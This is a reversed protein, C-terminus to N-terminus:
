PREELLFRVLKPNRRLTDLTAPSLRRIMKEEDAPGLETAIGVQDFIGHLVEHWLTEALADRGLEDHLTITQADHDVHGVLSEGEKVVVANLDARDTSVTYTIPGVVITKPPKM